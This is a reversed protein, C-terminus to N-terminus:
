KLSATLKPATSGPASGPVRARIIELRGSKEFENMIAYNVASEPPCTAEAFLPRILRDLSDHDTEEKQLQKEMTEYCAKWTSPTIPAVTIEDQSFPKTQVRDRYIKGASLPMLLTINRADGPIAQPTTAAYMGHDAIGVYMPYNMRAWFICDPENERIGLAVRESPLQLFTKECATEIDDGHDTCYQILQASLESGHVFVGDPMRASEKKGETASSPFEYGAQRLQMYTQKHLRNPQKAFVGGCGNVVFAMTGGQGLFPHAWNDNKQGLGGPTRGHIIGVNGPLDELNKRRLFEDLDGIVKEMHLTGNDLTVMGTYHGCDWGEQRRMMDVLIPSAPRTGVYGAINCM